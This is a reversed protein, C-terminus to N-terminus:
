QFRVHGSGINESGINEVSPSVPYPLECICFHAGYFHFTVPNFFWPFAHPIVQYTTLGDQRYFGAAAHGRGGQLFVGAKGVFRANRM